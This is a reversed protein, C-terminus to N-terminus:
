VLYKEDKSLSRYAKRRQQRRLDNVIEEAIKKEGWLMAWYQDKQCLPLEDMAKQLQNLKKQYKNLLNM